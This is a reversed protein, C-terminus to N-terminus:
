WGMYVICKEAEKEKKLRVEGRDWSGKGGERVVVDVNGGLDGM